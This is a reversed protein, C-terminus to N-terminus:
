LLGVKRHRRRCHGCRLNGKRGFANNGSPPKKNKRTSDTLKRDPAMYRKQSQQEQRINGPNVEVGLEPSSDPVKFGVSLGLSTSVPRETAQSQELRLARGPGSSFADSHQTLTGTTFIDSEKAVKQNQSWDLDSLRIYNPLPKPYASVVGASSPNNPRGGSIGNLNEIPAAGNTEDTSQGEMLWPEYVSFRYITIVNRGGAVRPWRVLRIRTSKYTNEWRRLACCFLKRPM